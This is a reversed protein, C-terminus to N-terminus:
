ATRAQRIPRDTITTTIFSFQIHRDTTRTKTRHWKHDTQIDPFLTVYGFMTDRLLHYFAEAAARCNQKVLLYMVIIYATQSYVNIAIRSKNRIIEVIRDLNSSAANPFVQDFTNNKTAVSRTPKVYVPLAFAENLLHRNNFNELTFVNNNLIDPRFANTNGILNFLDQSFCNVFSVVVLDTLGETIILNVLRFTKPNLSTYM